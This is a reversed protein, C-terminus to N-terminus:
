QVLRPLWHDPAGLRKGPQFGFDACGGQQSSWSQAVPPISCFIYANITGGTGVTWSVSRIAVQLFGIPTVQGPIAALCDTGINLVPMVYRPCTTPNGNTCVLTNLASLSTAGLITGNATPVQQFANVFVSNKAQAQSLETGVFIDTVNPRGQVLEVFVVDKGTGAIFSLTLTSGCQTIGQSDAFSCSPAAIPVVNAFENCPGGGVGIASAKVSFGGSFGLFAGMFTDIQNNHGSQGDAGGLVKVANYFQPTLSQDLTVTGDGLTFTQGDTYFTSANRDWFGIVVDGSGNIAVQDTDINHREAFLRATNTASALGTDMGNFSKAGAMAGADLATQLQAKANM